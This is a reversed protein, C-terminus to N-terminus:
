LDHDGTFLFIELAIIKIKRKIESLINHPTNQNIKYKELFYKPFLKFEGFYPGHIAEYITRWTKMEYEYINEVDIKMTRTYVTTRHNGRDYVEVAVHAEHLFSAEAYINDPNASAEKTIGVADM